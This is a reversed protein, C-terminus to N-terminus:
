SDFVRLVCQIDQRCVPCLPEDKLEVKKACNCCCVLHGCPVFAAKRRKKLCIVCLQGDGAEVPEDDGSGSEVTNAKNDGQHSRQQAGKFPLTGPTYRLVDNMVFYGGGQQPGQPALFFSQSFRLKAMRPTTFCGTVVVFLGGGHSPQADLNELLMSCGKLETSSYYKKIARITTISKMTGDSGPRGLISDGHYFKHAEEPTATLIRYYQQAFANAVVDPSVAM